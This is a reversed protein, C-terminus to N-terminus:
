ASPSGYWSLGVRRLRCLGPVGAGGPRPGAPGADRHSTARERAPAAAPTAPEASGGGQRAAGEALSAPDMVRPLCSHGAREALALGYERSLFDESVGGEVIRWPLFADPPQEGLFLSAQLQEAALAEHFAGVTLGGKLVLPALAALVPALRRDGRRSCPRYRQGVQPIPKSRLRTDHWRVPWGTRGRGLIRAPTMAVREFPTQAKPVFPTANIAVRRKFVKQLRATFDVIGQIDEDTETPHGVMFYMKLLSFGLAQALEAAALLSDESQPKNIVRRLRESGAEPAITLTQAGGAALARLLPVSLPDARMSSVHLRAGMAQLEGAILDIQSHDSVAASM